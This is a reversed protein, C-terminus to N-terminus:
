LGTLEHFKQETFYNPFAQQIKLVADGLGALDSPSPSFVPKWVPRTQYLLSRNYAHDDRLCAALYGVNLFASGFCSQANEATDRLTEHAAQIAERTTPNATSFGLDDLTLGTEGAFVSAIMKLQETYPLMSQQQFQGVVPHDGNSDKDIRLFSSLTALRNNFQSKKDMGLVYKQPFSYFEASVESRWLVRAAYRVQSMNARSIRSHGFPRRADPRYIVPVLLAYPAKSTYVDQQKGGSYIYMDGGAFYAETQPAGYENRSLVAYGETLLNNTTDIVGTANGGDIVQLRPYGDAGKSIYVFSCASILASLIASGFFIDRNNLDFIEELMFNDDAFSDFRLKNALTDVSKSCWGLVTKLQQFNAPIITGQVDLANKMEYYKYREDVRVRKRELQTRLYDIGKYDPM